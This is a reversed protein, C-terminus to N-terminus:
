GDFVEKVQPEREVHTFWKPAGSYAFRRLGRGGNMNKWCEDKFPCYKCVTGLRMNGSKGEPVPAFARPPPTDQALAEELQMMKTRMDPLHRREHKALVLHGLEKDITLFYGADKNVDEMADMYGALQHRYGFDDNEESIGRNWKFMGIASSTKVDVVNGDIVADIRGSVKTGAPTFYTLHEQEREVKHGAMKALALVYAEAMDGFFFKLTVWPELPPKPYKKMRYWAKCTPDGLNSFWIGIKDPDRQTVSQKLSAAMTQGFEEFLEDYMDVQDAPIGNSKLSYIDALLTDISSM